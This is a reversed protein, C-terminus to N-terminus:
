AAGMAKVSSGSTQELRRVLIADASLRGPGFALCLLSALLFLFPSAAVMADSDQFMGLLATRDEAVSLYAVLMNISLVAAVPRTALGAILLLGGAMEVGGVFWANLGPLPIGLSTFFNTVQEHNALKGRGAAFFDYGWKLRLLLLLLNQLSIFVLPTYRSYLYQASEWLFLM